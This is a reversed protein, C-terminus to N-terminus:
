FDPLTGPHQEIAMSTYWRCWKFSDVFPDLFTCIQRYISIVYLFVTFVYTINRFFFGRM